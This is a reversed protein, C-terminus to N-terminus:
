TLGHAHAWATAAARSTRGSVGIKAYANAVHREVTRVSLVLQAAIEDNSRGKAVLCLVERERPSLIGDGGNVPASVGLGRLTDDARTTAVKADADRGEARLAAALELRATAADYRAGAADYLDAADEIFALAATGEGDAAAVRGAALLAAARLPATGVTEATTAIEEAAERATEVDGAAAAARVLLELGVVREFRDSEGIRRLFRAACDISTATDGRDLALLGSVLSHFRHSTSRALLQEADGTRGQRRRLEALRVIADADKEPRLAGLEEIAALLEIEARSFDGHWLLIDAWHTRCIAFMGRDGFREAIQQVRQCWESARELDRVRKCADILLCCVTEISDADTMEGGVAAAVAADLRRMGEDVNGTSVLSLGNLALSLMEYDVAGVARALAIAEESDLRAGETDHRGLLALYARGFHVFATAVSPPRGDVLQAAREIWGNAEAPGRFVFADYALQMALRAALDPDAATRALRYGREHADQAAGGDLQYRAAIGLGEYADASEREELAEVFHARADTWAGRALAERGAVIPEASVTV